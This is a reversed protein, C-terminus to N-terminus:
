PNLVFESLTGKIWADIFREVDKRRGRVCLEYPSRFDLNRNPYYFIVKTLQIDRSCLKRVKDALDIGATDYMRKITKYDRVM